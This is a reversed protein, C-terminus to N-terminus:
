QKVIEDAGGSYQSALRVVVDRARADDHHLVDLFALFQFDLRAAESLADWFSPRIFTNEIHSLAIAYMGGPSCFKSEANEVFQRMLSHGRLWLFSAWFGSQDPLISFFVNETKTDLDLNQLFSGSLDRRPNFGGACVLNPRQSFHYNAFAFETYNSKLLATDFRNKLDNLEDLAAVAGASTDSAIQQTSIQAEIGKGRDLSRGVNMAALHGTKVFIERCLTRYASLFTLRPSGDFERGDLDAFINNDHKKCFGTFTSAEKASKNRFRIRNNNYLQAWDPTL